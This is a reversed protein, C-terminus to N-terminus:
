QEEYYILYNNIILLEYLQTKVWSKAGWTTTFVGGAVLYQVTAKIEEDWRYIYIERAHCFLSDSHRIALKM